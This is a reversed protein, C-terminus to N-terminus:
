KNPEFDTGNQEFSCALTCSVELAAINDFEDKVLYKALTDALGPLLQLPGLITPIYQARVLTRLSTFPNILVLGQSSIGPLPLTLFLKQLYPDPLQVKKRLSPSSIPQLEM